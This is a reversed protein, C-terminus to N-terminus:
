TRIENERHKGKRQSRVERAGPETNNTETTGQLSILVHFRFPRYFGETSYKIQEEQLKQISLNKQMNANQVSKLTYFEHLAEATAVSLAEFEPMETAGEIPELAVGCQDVAEKKLENFRADLDEDPCPLKEQCFDELKKKVFTLSNDVVEKLRELLSIRNDKIVAQTSESASREIAARAKAKEQFISSCSAWILM